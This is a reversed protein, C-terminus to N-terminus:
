TPPNTQNPVTALKIHEKGGTIIRCRGLMLWSEVSGPDEIGNEYGSVMIRTEPPYKSLLAILEGVTLKM